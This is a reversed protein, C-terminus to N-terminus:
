LLGAEKAGRPNLVSFPVDFDRAPQYDPDGKGYKKFMQEVSSGIGTSINFQGLKEKHVAKDIASCVDDVDIYDRIQKGDGYIIRNGNIISDIVGHGDGGGFVNSLRLVTLKKFTQGLMHEGIKKSSGYLTNGLVAASSTFIVHPQQEYFLQIFRVYLKINYLYGELSQELSAALFVVTDFKEGEWEFLDTGTKMDISSWAEGTTEPRGMLHTGVFGSGGIVLVKKM